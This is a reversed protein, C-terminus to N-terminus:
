SRQKLPLKEELLKVIEDINTKREFLSNSLKILIWLVSLPLLITQIVILSLELIFLNVISNLIKEKNNWLYVTLNKTFELKDKAEYILSKFKNIISFRSEGKKSNINLNERNFAESEFKSLDKFVILNKEIRPKFFNEYLLNNILGCIPLSLRLALIFIIIGSIAVSVNKFKDIWIFPILILFFYSIINLAYVSLIEKSIKMLGLLALSLTLVTSLRETADDLPDLVQGIPVVVGVGAPSFELEMEKAMSVLANTMRVFGYVVVTEKIATHFYADGKEDLYPFKEPAFKSGLFALVLLISIVTKKVFDLSNKRRM